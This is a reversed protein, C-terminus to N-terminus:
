QWKGRNADDAGAILAALALCVLLGCFIYTVLEASM